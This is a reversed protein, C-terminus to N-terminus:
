AHMENHLNSALRSIGNRSVGLLLTDGNFEVVLLKGNTGLTVADIVRVPRNSEPKVPLGLQLRKWLWLSGWALGGILPVVLFLRLLYEVIM